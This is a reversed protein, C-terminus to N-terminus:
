YVDINKFHRTETEETNPNIRVAIIDIQWKSDLPIKNKILWVEASRAIKKRKSFNVKEEPEIDRSFTRLTKVEVFSIINRKKAIIDVEGKQPSGPIKFCFNKDLIKYGEGRLYKEAIKEGLKGIRKTAM